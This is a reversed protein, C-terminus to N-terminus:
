VTNTTKTRNYGTVVYEPLEFDINWSSRTRCDLLKIRVLSCAFAVFIVSSYKSIKNRARYFFSKVLNNISLGCFKIEGRCFQSKMICWTCRCLWICYLSYRLNASGKNSICFTPYRAPRRYCENDAHGSKRTDLQIHGLILQMTSSLTAFVKRLEHM